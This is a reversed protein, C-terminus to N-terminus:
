PNKQRRKRESKSYAPLSASCPLTMSAWDRKMCQKLEYMIGAGKKWSVIQSVPSRVTVVAVIDSLDDTQTMERLVKYVEEAGSNVHKWLPISSVDDGFNSVM